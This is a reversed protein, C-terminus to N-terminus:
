SDNTTNPIFSLDKALAVFATVVSSDRWDKHGWQRQHWIREGEKRSMIAGQGKVWREEQGSLTLHWYELQTTCMQLGVVLPPASASSLVFRPEM